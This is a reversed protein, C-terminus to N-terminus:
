FWKGIAFNSNVEPQVGFPALDKLTQRQSFQSSFYKNPDERPSTLPMGMTNAPLILTKMPSRSVYNSKETHITDHSVKFNLLPPKKHQDQQTSSNDSPKRLPLKM